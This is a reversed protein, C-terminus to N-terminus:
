LENSTAVGDGVLARLYAMEDQLAEGYVRLYERVLLKQSM